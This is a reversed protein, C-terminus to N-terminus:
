YLAGEWCDAIELKQPHEDYAEFGEMLAIARDNECSGVTVVVTNPMKGGSEEIVAAPVAESLHLNKRFDPRPSLLWDWAAPGVLLYAREGIGQLSILYKNTDSM